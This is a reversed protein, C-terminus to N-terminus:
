CWDDNIEPQYNEPIGMTMVNYLSCNDCQMYRDLKNQGKIRVDKVLLHGIGCEPCKVKAHRDKALVNAADRWRKFWDETRKDIM